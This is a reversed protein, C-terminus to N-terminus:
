ALRGLHQTLTEVNNELRASGHGDVIAGALKGRMALTALQREEITDEVILNVVYVHSYESSARVHRSNRQALVGNSDPLDFNVLYQAGPLDLGYGGANTSLFLRCDPDTDFKAKAAAKEDASMQGHFQVLGAHKDLRAALYPLMRRYSTFVATKVGPEALMDGVVRDLEDLKPTHRLLEDLPSVKAILDAIYRSGEGQGAYYAEASDVLLEPHCILMRAALLRAMVAGQACMDTESMAGAYYAGIDFTGGSDALEELAVALDNMIVKYTRRTTPDLTISRTTEAVSPLYRAVEPDLRSKRIMRARLNRHLLDLNKYQQM